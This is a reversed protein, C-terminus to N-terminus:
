RHGKSLFAKELNTVDSRVVASTAITKDKETVFASAVTPVLEKTRESVEMDCTIFDLTQPSVCRFQDDGFLVGFKIGSPMSRPDDLIM